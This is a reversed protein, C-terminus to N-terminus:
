EPCFIAVVYKLQNNDMNGRRGLFRRPLALKYERECSYISGICMGLCDLGEGLFSKRRRFRLRALRLEGDM